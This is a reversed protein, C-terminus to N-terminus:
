LGLMSSRFVICIKGDVQSIITAKKDTGSKALKFCRGADDPCRVSRQPQPMFCPCHEGGPGYGLKLLKNLLIFMQFETVDTKNGHSRKRPCSKPGKPWGRCNAGVTLPVLSVVEVQPHCLRTIFTSVSALFGLASYNLCLHITWVFTPFLHIFTKNRQSYSKLGVEEKRRGSMWGCLRMGYSRQLARKFIGHGFEHHCISFLPHFSGLYIHLGNRVHAM